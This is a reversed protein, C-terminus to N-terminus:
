LCEHLHRQVYKKIERPCICLHIIAPNYLNFMKFNLRILFQGNGFPNNFKYEWFCHMLELQEMNEGVDTNHATKIDTM